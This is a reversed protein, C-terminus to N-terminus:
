DGFPSENHRWCLWKPVVLAILVLHVLERQVKIWRAQEVGQRAVEVELGLLQTLESSSTRRIRVRLGSAEQPKFWQRGFMSDLLCPEFVDDADRLFCEIFYLLFLGCDWANQQLPVEVRKRVFDKLVITCNEDNVDVGRIHNWEAEVYRSLVLFVEKSVHGERMSDLHLIYPTFGNREQPNTAFCIIALSWHACDHVPVLLYKKEFINVGKTWKRLESYYSSGKTKKRKELLLKKFFFTNFFHFHVKKEQRLFEPRQLYKIYFDIVTDNLFEYPDLHKMDSQQVEVAEPDGSPYTVKFGERGEFNSRLSYPHRSLGKAKVDEEGNEEEDDSLEMATDKSAGPSDKHMHLEPFLRSKRRSDSEQVGAKTFGKGFVPTSKLSPSKKKQLPSITKQKKGSVVRHAISGEVQNSLKFDELDVKFEQASDRTNTYFSSSSVVFSSKGKQGRCTNGNSSGKNSGVKTNGNCSAGRFIGIAESFASDEVQEFGSHNQMRAQKNTCFTAGANQETFRSNTLEHGMDKTPYQGAEKSLISPGMAQQKQLEELVNYLHNLKSKLKNGRDALSNGMTRLHGEYKQIDAKTSEISYIEQREEENQDWLFTRPKTGMIEVSYVEESAYRMCQGIDIPLPAGKREAGM